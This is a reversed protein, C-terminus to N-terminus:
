GNLIEREAAQCFRFTKTQLFSIYNDFATQSVKRFEYRRQGRRSELRVDDGERFYISNPNLLHGKDPGEMCWKAFLTVGHRGQVRKAACKEEDDTWRGQIDYCFTEGEDKPPTAVRFGPKTPREVRLIAEDLEKRSM